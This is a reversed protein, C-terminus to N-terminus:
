ATKYYDPLSQADGSELAYKKKWEQIQSLPVNGPDYGTGTADEGTITIITRHVYGKLTPSILKRAKLGAKDNDFIFLVREVDLSLLLDRKAESWNNTGLIALAPIGCGILRIADRPGEVLAVYRHEMQDLMGKVVQIPFLARDKAWSGPSNIYKMLTKNKGKKIIKCRAEVTGTFDGNTFQPLVCMQEQWKENFALWGGIKRVLWGPVGRWKMDAPWETYFGITYHEMIAELTWGHDDELFQATDLERKVHQTIQGGGTTEAMGWLRALGNWGGNKSHSAGCGFCFFGGIPSRRNYPDLNISMSPHQERHFPCPAMVRKVGTLKRKLKRELEQVIIRHDDSQYAAM